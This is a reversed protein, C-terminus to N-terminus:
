GSTLRRAEFTTEISHALRRAGQRSRFIGAAVVALSLTLAALPIFNMKASVPIGNNIALASLVLGFTGILMAAQVFPSPLLRGRIETAGHRDILFGHFYPAFLARAATDTMMLRFSRGAVTAIVKSPGTTVLWATRPIGALRRECDSLSLGTRWVALTWM